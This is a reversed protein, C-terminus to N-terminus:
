YRQLFTGRRRRIKSYSCSLESASSVEVCSCNANAVPRSLLCIFGDCRYVYITTQAKDTTSSLTSTSSSEVQVSAVELTSKSLHNTTIIFLYLRKMLVVCPLQHFWEFSLFDDTTFSDGLFLFYGLTSSARYLALNTAFFQLRSEQMALKFFLNVHM